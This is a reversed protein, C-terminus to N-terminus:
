ALGFGGHSPRPRLSQRRGRQDAVVADDAQRNAARQRGERDGAGDGHREEVAAAGAPADLLRLRIQRLALGLELVQPGADVVVGPGCEQIQGGRFFLHLRGRAAPLQGGKLQRLRSIPQGRAHGVGDFHHLGLLHDAAAMSRNMAACYSTVTALARTSLAGPESSCAM